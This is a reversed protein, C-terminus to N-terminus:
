ASPSCGSCARGGGVPTPRSSRDPEVASRPVAAPSCGCLDVVPAVAGRYTFLGAIYAPARPLPACRCARCWRSWARRLRLAFREGGVPSRRARADGGEAAVTFRSIEERLGDVADRLHSPRATSSRSRRRRRARARPSSSWRRTSRRARRAVPQAHGRQGLRLTRSLGQVQEIIQGLQSGISEVGHEVGRRVEETFKDMEMVGASVASQM